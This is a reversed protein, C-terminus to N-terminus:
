WRPGLLKALAAVDLTGLGSAPNYNPAAQWFLNTGTTIAHFPSKPGYGYRSYLRYLQPNLFGLRSGANQTLLAAIGNLQPAVFSTGGSGTSFLGGACVVYGTNPDANLSVDPVNRGAFGPTIGGLDVAGTTDPNSATYKPYFYLESFESPTAKVGPLGAQWSPIDFVCSVGGGAGVPFLYYDYTFQNYYKVYYDKMYDWGWPREQPVDIIGHRFQLSVPLTTGGAATVYPDAAPHDVSNLPSYFPTSYNRNIDFAGSDGASAFVPIGQAAAQMFAQQYATLTDADLFIEGMGWSVSLTDVKNDSVARYFLDVFGSATNPAEYVLIKAAPALGGSQEVDLTTEDAGNTGAGGDVPIETIRKPDVTLGLASWYTYADAPNFSALTAIGITRGKGTIHQKYLPNINYLNAVDGVTLEGPIGTALAGNPFSKATLTEGTPDLLAKQSNILHSKFAPQSDLGEITLVLDQIEKPMQPKCNPKQFRRGHDFWTHLETNLLKNFQATTGTARVVMHSNYVENVTIGQKKMFDLVQHFDWPTPAFWQAFDETSLFWRYEWSNPNVSQAIFRELEKPNRVKFIISVTQPVEAKVAGLDQVEQAQMPVLSAALAFLL